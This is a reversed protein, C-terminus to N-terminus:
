SCPEEENIIVKVSSLTNCLWSSSGLNRKMALTTPWELAKMKAVNPDFKQVLRSALFEMNGESDRITMALVTDFKGTTIDTNVTFWGCPRVPHFVENAPMTKCPDEETDGLYVEVSRSARMFNSEM